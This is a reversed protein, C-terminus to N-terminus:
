LVWVYYIESNDYNWESETRQSMLYFIPLIARYSVVMAFWKMTPMMRLWKLNMWLNHAYMYMTPFFWQSFQHPWCSNIKKQCIIDIDRFAHSIRKCYGISSNMSPYWLIVGQYIYIINEEVKAKPLPNCRVTYSSQAAFNM